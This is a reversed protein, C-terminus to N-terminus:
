PTITKEGHEWKRESPLHADVDNSHFVAHGLFLKGPGEANTLLRRVIVPADRHRSNRGPGRRGVHSQAETNIGRVDPPNHSGM